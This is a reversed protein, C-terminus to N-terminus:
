GITWTREGLLLADLDGGGEQERAQAVQANIREEVTPRQAVYFLGFPRPMAGEHRPDEFLRVLISAKFSDHQDHVWLDGMSASGDALDVIVPTMGDLKIGKTGNAFEAYVEKGLFQAAVM